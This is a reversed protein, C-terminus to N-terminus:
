TPLECRIIFEDGFSAKNWWRFLMWSVERPLEVDEVHVYDFKDSDKMDPFRQQEQMPDDKPPLIVVEGEKPRKIYIQFVGTM